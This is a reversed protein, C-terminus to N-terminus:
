SQAAKDALLAEAALRGSRLAGNLSPTALHDGCAYVGGGLRADRDFGAANPPPRGEQACSLAYTRLHRWSTVEADGFWQSLESRVAAELSARQEEALGDAAPSARLANAVPEGVIAVSALHSGAPAYSPSVLSPFCLTNVIRSSQEKGNLTLVPTSVPPAHDLAFYMCASCLPDRQADADPRLWATDPRESGILRVAEARTTAVVLEDCEIEEGDVLRVVHPKSREPTSDFAVSQVACGLRVVGGQFTVGQALQDSVAGLGNAPLAAADEAFMKLVFRCLVASQEELPALFIGEFFPRFFAEILPDSLSLRDSFYAYTSMEQQEEDDFIGGLDTTLLSLVEVVLRAKDALTGIPFALTSLLHEPARLPDAVLSRSERTQVLAGPTFRGLDLKDYDLCGKSEPYGCLFVQFGRDLLFGESTRDTRVRGGVGDSAELVTVDVGSRALQLACRLGAVGAGICVVRGSVLATSLLLLPALLM